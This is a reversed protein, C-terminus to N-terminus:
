WFRFPRNEPFCLFLPLPSPIRDFMGWLLLIMMKGLRSLMCDDAERMFSSDLWVLAVVVLVVVVVVVVVVLGFIKKDSKLSLASCSTFPASVVVAVVVVVVVVVVVLVVAVAEFFSGLLLLLLM